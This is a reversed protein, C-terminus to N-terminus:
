SIGELVVGAADNVNQYITSEEDRGFIWRLTWVPYTAARPGKEMLTVDCKYETVLQTAYESDRAKMLRQQFSFLASLAAPDRVGFMLSGGGQGNRTTIHGQCSFITVLGPHRNVTVIAKVIEQDCLKPDALHPTRFARAKQRRLMALVDLRRVGNEDLYTIPGDCERNGPQGFHKLAQESIIKDLGEVTGHPFDALPLNLLVKPTMGSLYEAPTGDTSLDVRMTHPDDPDVSCDVHIKQGSVVAERVFNGMEEPTPAPPELKEYVVPKGDRFTLVGAKPLTPHPDVGLVKM